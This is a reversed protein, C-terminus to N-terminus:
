GSCPLENLIHIGSVGTLRGPSGVRFFDAVEDPVGVKHRFPRALLTDPLKQSKIANETASGGRPLHEKSAINKHYAAYTKVFEM